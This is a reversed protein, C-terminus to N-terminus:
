FKANLSIHFKSNSLKFKQDESRGAAYNLRLIGAKTLLGLGLGFGYIKQKSATLKNEFYSADIISHVYINSNLAYRFETNLVSYLSAVLSQEEFGRISNIGGFRLLENNLYSNSNIAKTNLKVYISNTTNLNFIKYSEFSYVSQKEKIDGDKRAGIGAKAELFFNIPFLINNYQRKTFEYKLNYFITNYDQILDLENTNLLNNSQIANIGTFLKQNKNIQYFLDVSQNITTFTSDKKFINLAFETGIASGFLYPLNINAQFTKQTSADSKYILTISEGSNLNNILNLNLYGNFEIKNSTENTGFGLFGDFSNGKSKELYLYLSTAHDTFLVEPTKTQSAFKLANLDRVKKKITNLDFPDGQKLKLFHKLFAKPFNEYGKIVFTDITRKTQISGSLKAQLTNDDKKTIDDLRHSIFPQGQGALKSNIQDLLAESKQITTIFYDSSVQDTISELYSKSITSTDYYIYLTNYKKKLSLVAIYTSDNKKSIPMPQLEIYGIKQLKLQLTNLEHQLSKFNVFSNKYGISDIIKNESPNDGKIKLNLDQALLPSIGIICISFYLILIKFVKL